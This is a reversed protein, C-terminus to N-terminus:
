CCRASRLKIEPQLVFAWRGFCGLRGSPRSACEHAATPGVRCRHAGRPRPASSPESRSRREYPYIVKGSAYESPTVRGPDLHGQVPSTTARSTRSQIQLVRSQAWEGDKRVERRRGRDQVHQVSTTPLSTMTSARPESLAQALGGDACLGLARHLLRAPRRGGLGGQGSVEELLEAVRPFDMKPGCGFDYNVLRQAVAGAADQHRRRCAFLGGGIMRPKFGIENIAKVMRGFGAPVLLDGRHGSKDGPHRSRDARLRHDIASLAQRVRSSGPWRAQRPCGRLTSPSSRTPPSSRWQRRSRIRRWPLTSSGQHLGDEPGAPASHMPSTTPITFESNVALGFLGILMKKKERRGADGAGAHQHRLRRHDSRGQRRESVQHLHRARPRTPRTTTISSSSPRGLARGQRQYGGWIKQALLASKGNPFGATQLYATAL